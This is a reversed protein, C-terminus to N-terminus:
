FIQDVSCLGSLANFQEVDSSILRSRFSGIFNFNELVWFYKRGLLSKKRASVILPPLNLFRETPPLGITKNLFMVSEFGFTCHRPLSRIVVEFSPNPVEPGNQQSDANCKWCNPTM